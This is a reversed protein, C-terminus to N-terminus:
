LGELHFSPMIKKCLHKTAEGPELAIATLADNLDPERFISYKIQKSKAKDLLKFLAEEDRVSLSCLYNSNDRWEKAIVNHELIFDTLAHASQVLQSGAKLDRRTIIYLKDGMNIM